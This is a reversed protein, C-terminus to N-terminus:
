RCLELAVLAYSTCLLPLNEFWRESDHNVWSGDDQQLSELQKKLAPRWAVGVPKGDAGMAQVEDLKAADLAQALLLYGYYQGHFKAKPDKGDYNGPNGTLDWHTGIWKVAAQVRPDDQKVGALTYAKLLAYTMSGYSRPVVTGDPNKQYGAPSNGPFYVAGGDDGAVAELMAGEKDPDATKGRHDNTSKLNQTRQLFVLAKAFSEHDGPLGTAHLAELSFHLNSLDGRTKGDYGISGFDPDSPKYGNAELHQFLLISKQARQLAQQHAKDGARTLAGIAVCTVYNPQNKGFTGDENQQQLLWALGQDITTQEEASRLDKPKTQLAMLGLATLGPDQLERGRMRLTFVGGKQQTALWALAKTRAESLQSPAAPPMSQAALAGSLLLSAFLSVAQTRNM